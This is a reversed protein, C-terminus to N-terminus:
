EGKLALTPEIRAARRAPLWAALLVIGMLFAATVVAVAMDIRVGEGGPGTPPIMRSILPRLVGALSLGMATGAVALRAAQRLIM